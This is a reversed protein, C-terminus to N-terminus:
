VRAACLTKMKKINRRAFEEYFARRACVVRACNRDTVLLFNSWRIM